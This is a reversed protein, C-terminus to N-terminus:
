EKLKKFYTYGAFFSMLLAESLESEPLDLCRTINAFELGFETYLYQQGIQTLVERVEVITFPMDTISLEDTSTVASM